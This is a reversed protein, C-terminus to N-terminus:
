TRSLSLAARGLLLGIVTGVALGRVLDPSLDSRCELMKHRLGLAQERATPRQGGALQGGKEEQWMGLSNTTIPVPNLARVNESETYVRGRVEIAVLKAELAALHEESNSRAMSQVPVRYWRVAWPSGQMADLKFRM